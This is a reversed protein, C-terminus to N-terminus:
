FRMQRMFVELITFTLLYFIKNRSVNNGLFEDGFSGKSTEIVKSNTSAKEISVSNAICEYEENMWFGSNCIVCRSKIFPDCKMCNAGTNCKVCTTENSLYGPDCVTCIPAKSVRNQVCENDPVLGDNLINEPNVCAKRNETAIKGPNCFLCESKASYYLCDSIPETVPQCGELTIFYNEACVLCYYEKEGNVNVRSSQQDCNEVVPEPVCEKITSKNGEGDTIEKDKFFTGDKCELCEKEDKFTKCNQATTAICRKSLNMFFGDGCTKCEFATSYRICGEIAEPVTSCQNNALFFNDNCLSCTTLNSYADCNAVGTPRGQCKTKDDSIITDESCKNCKDENEIYEICNVDIIARIKCLGNDLYHSPSCKICKYSEQIPPNTYGYEICNSVTVPGFCVNPRFDSKNKDINPGFGNECIECEYKNLILSDNKWKKCNSDYMFICRLSNDKDAFLGYGEKCVQCDGDGGGGYTLCNDVAGSVCAKSDGSKVYGNECVDCIVGTADVNHQTCFKINEPECKNEFVLYGSSCTKCHANNSTKVVICNSLDATKTVCQTYNEVVVYKERCTICKFNDNGGKYRLCNDVFNSGSIFNNFAIYTRPTCFYKAPTEVLFAVHDPSACKQCGKGDFDYILPLTFDYYTADIDFSGIPYLNNVFNTSCDYSSIVECKLDENLTYGEECVYCGDDPHAAFCNNTFESLNGQSKTICTHYEIVKKNKDFMYLFGATCKSCANFWQFGFTTDCNDIKSCTKISDSQNEDYTAKFGPACAVCRLFDNATKAKDVMVVGLGCTGEYPKVLTTETEWDSSVIPNRCTVLLGDASAPTANPTTDTMNYATPIYTGAETSTAHYFPIKDDSCHSCSFIGELIQTTQSRYNAGKMNYTSECNPIATLCTEPASISDSYKKTIGSFGDKCRLCTFSDIGFFYKCGEKASGSQVKSFVDSSTKCVLAPLRTMPHNTFELTENVTLTHAFKMVSVEIIEAMGIKCKACIKKLVKDKNTISYTELACNQTESSITDCKTQGMNILDNGSISLEQIKVNFGDFNCQKICAGDKLYFGPQCSICVALDPLLPNGQTIYKMKVCNDPIDFDPKDCYYSNEYKMSLMNEKCENCTFVKNDLELDHCGEEEIPLPKKCIKLTKDLYFNKKCLLCDGNSLKKELCNENEPIPECKKGWYGQQCISCDDQNEYQLCAEIVKTLKICSNEAPFKFYGEECTDCLNRTLKSMQSCFPAIVNEDHSACQSVSEIYTKDLCEECKDSTRAYIKCKSTFFEAPQVCKKTELDLYYGENCVYCNM